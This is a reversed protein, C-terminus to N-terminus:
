GYIIVNKKEHYLQEIEIKTIQVSGMASSTTIQYVEGTMYEVQNVLQSCHLVYNIQNKQFAQISLSILRISTQKVGWRNKLWNIVPVSGRIAISQKLGFVLIAESALISELNAIEGKWLIEFFKTGVFWHSPDSM